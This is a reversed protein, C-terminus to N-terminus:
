ARAKAKRRNGDADDSPWVIASFQGGIPTYYRRNAIQRGEAEIPLHHTALNLLRGLSRTTLGLRGLCLTAPELGTEREVTSMCLCRQANRGAKRTASAAAMRNGLPHESENRSPSMSVSVYSTTANIPRTVPIM